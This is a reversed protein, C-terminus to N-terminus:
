SLKHSIALRTHVSDQTSTHRDTPTQGDSARRPQTWVMCPLPTARYSLLAMYPDASKESLSKATKVAREAMGNSQPYHPSSTIHQFNYMEAFEQMETSSYQPGNDSVLVSPIGHRAFIAKLACIISVSTTTAIALMHVEMYRSLYDVVLLYVKGNLQFLDSAVRECPHSPIPSGIM